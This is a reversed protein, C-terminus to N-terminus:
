PEAPVARIRGGERLIYASGHEDTRVLPIGRTRLHDLIRPHPHGYDNDRGASVVALRPGAADIVATGGNRAGHHSVKLVDVDVLPGATRLLARAGEEELDGTLLWSTSGGDEGTLEARLVLSANNEDASSPDSWRGPATPAPALVTLRLGGLTRTDGPAPRRAPTGPLADTLGDPPAAAATAYWVEGIRGHRALAPLGGTHDPTPTASSWSTWTSWGAAGCAGHWPRRTLVPTWSSPM